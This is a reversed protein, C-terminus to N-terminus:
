RVSYGGDVPLTVGSVYSAVDSALFAIVNAIEEPRACRGEIARDRLRAQMDGLGREAIRETLTLGPCIANVRLGKNGYEAALQRTFGLLGSKTSAYSAVGASGTLARESSVNVITGGGPAELLQPLLARTMLFASTLNLAFYRNWDELSLEHAPARFNAGVNNILSKLRVGGEQLQRALEQVQSEQTIDVQFTTCPHSAAAMSRALESLGQTNADVAFIHAGLGALAEATARGIGAAAGTVVVGLGNFQLHNLVFTEKSVLTKGHPRRRTTAHRYM